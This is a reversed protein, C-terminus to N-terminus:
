STKEQHGRALKEPHHLVQEHLCTGPLGGANCVVFGIICHGASQSCTTDSQVDEELILPPTWEITSEKSTLSIPNM